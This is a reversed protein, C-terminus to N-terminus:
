GQSLVFGELFEEGFVEIFAIDSLRFGRVCEWEEKNFLLIAVEAWYLVM